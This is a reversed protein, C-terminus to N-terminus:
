IWIRHYATFYPPLGRCPNKQCGRQQKRMGGVTCEVSHSALRLLSQWKLNWARWSEKKLQVCYRFSEEDLFHFLPRKSYVVPMKKKHSYLAWMLTVFQATIHFKVVSSDHLEKLMFPSCMVCALSLPTGSTCCMRTFSINQWKDASLTSTHIRAERGMGKGMTRVLSWKAAEGKKVENLLKTSHM